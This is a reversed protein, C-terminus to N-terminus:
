KDDEDKDGNGDNDISIVSIVTTQPTTSSSMTQKVIEYQPRQRILACITFAYNVLIIVLQAKMARLVTSNMFGMRKLVGESLANSQKNAPDTMDGYKAKVLIRYLFRRIPTFPGSQLVIGPPGGMPPSELDIQLPLDSFENVCLAEYAWRILSAQPVWSLWKPTNVVYLGGFVIFITMISPTISAGAEASSVISGISM